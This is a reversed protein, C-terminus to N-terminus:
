ALDARIASNLSCIPSVLAPISGLAAGQRDYGAPLWGRWFSAGGFVPLSVWRAFSIFRDHLANRYAASMRLQAGGRPGRVQQRSLGNRRVFTLLESPRLGQSYAFADM